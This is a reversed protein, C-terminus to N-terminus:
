IRFVRLLLYKISSIYSFHECYPLALKKITCFDSILFAYYLYAVQRLNIKSKRALNEDEDQAEEVLNVEKLSSSKQLHVHANKHFPAHHQKHYPSEVFLRYDQSSPSITAHNAADAKFLLSFLTLCFIFVARM